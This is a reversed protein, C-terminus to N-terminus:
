VFGGGGPRAGHPRPAQGRNERRGPGGGGPGLKVKGRVAGLKEPGPTPGPLRPAGGGIYGTDVALNTDTYTGGLAQGAGQLSAPREGLVGPVEGKRQLAGVRSREGGRELGGPWDAGAARLLERHGRM